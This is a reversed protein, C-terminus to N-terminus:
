FYCGKVSYFVKENISSIIDRTLFLNNELNELTGKKLILYIINM